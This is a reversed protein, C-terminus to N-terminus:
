QKHHEGQNVDSELMKVQEDNFLLTHSQSMSISSKSLMSYLQYKKAEIRHRRSRQRYSYFLALILILFISVVMVMVYTFEM